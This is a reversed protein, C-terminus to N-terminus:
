RCKASLSSTPPELGGLGVVRSGALARPVTANLATLLGHVSHCRMVPIVEQPTVSRRVTVGCAASGETAIVGHDDRHLHDWIAKATGTASHRTRGTRCLTGDHRQRFGDLGLLASGSASRHQGV